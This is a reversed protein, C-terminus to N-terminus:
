YTIKCLEDNEELIRNKILIEKNLSIEISKIKNFAFSEQIKKEQKLKNLKQKYFNRLKNLEIDIINM